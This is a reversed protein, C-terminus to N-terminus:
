GEDPLLVEYGETTLQFELNLVDKFSNIIKFIDFLRSSPLSFVVKVGEGRLEFSGEFQSLVESLGGFFEGVTLEPSLHVEVFAKLVSSNVYDYRILIRVETLVCRSTTACKVALRFVVDNSLLLDAENFASVMVDYPILSSLLDLASDM